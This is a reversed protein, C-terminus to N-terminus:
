KNKSPIPKAKNVLNQASSLNVVDLKFQVSLQRLNEILIPVESKRTRKLHNIRECLEKDSM